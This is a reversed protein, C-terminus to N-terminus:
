EIKQWSSIDVDIFDVLETYEHSNFESPFTLKVKFNETESSNFNMEWVDSNCVLANDSNRSYNENCTMVVDEDKYLEIVLPMFHFTKITIQYETTVNTINNGKTNSVQFSFVKSDGPKLDDFDLEIHDTRKTEFVFEAIEMNKVLFSTESNFLSYTIGSFCIILSFLILIILIRKKM